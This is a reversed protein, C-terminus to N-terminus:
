TLEHRLMDLLLSDHWGAGDVDREYQRMVGVPKFGVSTYCRIAIQNQAAPDITVRHHGREDFLWRAVTRVVEAGFGRGHWAPDLYLDINASRYDPELEEYADVAGIVVNGVLVTWHWEDPDDGASWGPEPAPWWAAVEPTGRIRRLDAMHEEARGVLALREASLSPGDM